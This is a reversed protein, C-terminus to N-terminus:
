DAAPREFHDVIFMETSVRRKELKLGLQEQLATYISALDNAPAVENSWQIDFDFPGTLKTEDSVPAGVDGIVIQLLSWIQSGVAKMSSGASSQTVNGEKCRPTTSFAKECDVASQRLRPGLVGTRVQVLAFGDVERTERHFTLKFRDVLLAQLMDFGQDRTAAEATKAIVDYYTDAAWAPAGALQFPQLHYAITVLHRAPMHEATIGGGPMLRMSGGGAVTKNEKVSAVEFAVQAALTLQLLTIVVAVRFTTKM